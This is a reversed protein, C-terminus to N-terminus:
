CQVTVSKFSVISNLLDNVKYIFPVIFLLSIGTFVRLKSASDCKSNGIIIKKKKRTGNQTCKSEINNSMWPILVPLCVRFFRRVHKSRLVYHTILFVLNIYVYTCIQIQIYRCRAQSHVYYMLSMAAVCVVYMCACMQFKLLIETM